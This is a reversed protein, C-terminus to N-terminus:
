ATRGRHRDIAARIARIHEPGTGCCGGIVAVGLDMLEGVRAALDDPSEPYHLTGGSNVPLGANSQIALPGTAHAAFERALEVM